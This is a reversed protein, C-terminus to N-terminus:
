EKALIAAMIDHTDVPRLSLRWLILALFMIRNSVVVLANEGCVM